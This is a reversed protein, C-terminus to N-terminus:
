EYCWQQDGCTDCEYISVEGYRPCPVRLPDNAPLLRCRKVPAPKATMAPVFEDRNFNRCSM